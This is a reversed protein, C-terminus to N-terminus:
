SFDWQFPQLPTQVVSIFIQVIMILRSSHLLKSLLTYILIYYCGLLILLLILAFILLFLENNVFSSSNLGLWSIHCLDSFMWFLIFDYFRITVHLIYTITATTTTIHCHTHNHHIILPSPPPRTTNTNTTPPAHHHHQHHHTTIANTKTHPTTTTSPPPTPYHYDQSCTNSIFTVFTSYVRWSIFVIIYIGSKTFYAFPCLIVSTCLQRKYFLLYFPELLHFLFFQYIFHFHYNCIFFSIVNEFGRNFCNPHTLYFIVTEKLFAKCLIFYFCRISM